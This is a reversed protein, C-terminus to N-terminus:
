SWDKCQMCLPNADYNGTRHAQRLENYFRCNWIESISQKKIDGAVYKGCYDQGCMVARGDASITMRNQLKWCLEREGLTLHMLSKDEIQSARDNFGRLVVWDAKEFWYNVFSEMESINERVKTFEVVVFPHFQNKRARLDLLTEVNRVVTNYADVGHTERYTKEGFADIPVSIVDLGSDLLRGCLEEDLLIANTELHTGYIGKQKAYGLMEVLGPHLLPEGVGCFSIKTDDMISADDIFKKFVPLDMFADPNYPKPAFISSTNNKGIIEVDIERPARGQYFGPNSDALGIIENCGMRFINNQGAAQALSKLFGIHHDADWTFRYNCSVIKEELRYFFEQVTPEPIYVNKRIDLVDKLTMKLAAMRGLYETSIVEYNFGAPAGTIMFDVKDKLEKFKGIVADALGADVLPAASPLKIVADAKDNKAIIYQMGPSGEECYVMSRGIGGQWSSLAWKRGARLKRRQPIDIIEDTVVYFCDLGGTAKRVAAEDRTRCAIFVKSLSKIKKAGNVTHWLVPKGLFDDLCRNKLGIPNEVLDVEIIGIINM